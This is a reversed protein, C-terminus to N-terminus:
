LKWLHASTTSPEVLRTRPNDALGLYDDYAPERFTTGNWLAVHGSADGWGHVEIAMIGRKGKFADGYPPRRDAAAAGLVNALYRRLERVRFLYRHGDAGILVNLGLLKVVRADIPTGGHNLALSMRVACTNGDPGFGPVNINRELEGGVHRFLAELNPFARHDPFRKWLAEFAPRTM